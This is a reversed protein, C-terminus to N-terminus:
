ASIPIHVDPTHTNHTHGKRKKNIPSQPNTQEYNICNIKSCSSPNLSTFERPTSFGLIYKSKRLSLNGIPIEALSKHCSGQLYWYGCTSLDRLYFLTSCHM